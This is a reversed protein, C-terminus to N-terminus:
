AFSKLSLLSEIKTQDIKKPWSWDFGQMRHFRGLKAERMRAQISRSKKEVLELRVINELFTKLDDKSYSNLIDSINEATYHLRLEKLQQIFSETISM